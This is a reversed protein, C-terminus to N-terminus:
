LVAPEEDPRLAPALHNVSMFCIELHIIPRCLKDMDCSSRCHRATALTKIEINSVLFLFGKEFQFPSKKSLNVHQM